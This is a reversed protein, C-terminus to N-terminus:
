IYRLQHLLTVDLHTVRVTPHRMLAIEGDQIYEQMVWLICTEQLLHQPGSPEDYSGTGRM